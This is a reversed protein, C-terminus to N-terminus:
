AYGMVCKVVCFANVASRMACLRQTHFCDEVHPRGRSVEGGVQTDGVRRCGRPACPPVDGRLVIQVEDGCCRRSALVQLEFRQSLQPSGLRPSCSARRLIPETLNRYNLRM